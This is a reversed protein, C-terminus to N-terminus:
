PLHRFTYTNPHVAIILETNHPSFYKGSYSCWKGDGDAVDSNELKHALWGVSSITVTQLQQKPKQNTQKNSLKNTYQCILNM